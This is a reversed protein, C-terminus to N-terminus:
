KTIVLTNHSRQQCQIREFVRERRNVSLSMWISVGHLSESDSNVFNTTKSTRERRDVKSVLKSSKSTNKDPTDNHNNTSNKLARGVSNTMKNDATNHCSDTVTHIGTSNWHPLCFARSCFSSSTKHHNRTSQDGTTNSDRVPNVKAKVESFTGNRPSEGNAELHDEWQNNKRESQSEWLGWSPQDLLVTNFFSSVHKSSQVTGVQRTLFDCHLDMVHFLRQRLLVQFTTVAEVVSLKEHLTFMSVEVSQHQSQPGLDELLDGTDIQDCVIRTSNKLVVNSHVGEVGTHKSGTVTGFVENGRPNWEIHNLSESSPFQHQKSSGTLCKGHSHGNLILAGAFAIEVAPLQDKLKMTTMIVGTANLFM